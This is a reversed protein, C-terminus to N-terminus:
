SGLSGQGDVLVTHGAAKLSQAVSPNYPALAQVGRFHTPYGRQVRNSAVRVDVGSDTINTVTAPIWTQLTSESPNLNVQAFALLAQNGRRGQLPLIEKRYCSFEHEKREGNRPDIYSVYYVREPESTRYQRLHPRTVQGYAWDTYTDVSNLRRVRVTEGVKFYDVGSILGPDAIGAIAHQSRTAFSSISTTQSSSSLPPARSSHNSEQSSHPVQPMYWSKPADPHSTLNQSYAPHHPGTSTPLAYGEPYWHACM